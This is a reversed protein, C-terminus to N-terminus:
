KLILTFINRSHKKYIISVKKLISAQSTTKKLKHFSNWCGVSHFAKLFVLRQFTYLLNSKGLVQLQVVRLVGSVDAVEGEGVDLLEALCM